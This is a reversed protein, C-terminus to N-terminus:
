EVFTPKSELEIDYKFNMGTQADAFAFTFAGTNPSNYGKESLAASTGVLYVPQFLGATNKSTVGDITISASTASGFTGYVFGKINWSTGDYYPIATAHVVTFGATNIQGSIDYQKQFSHNNTSIIYWASGDCVVNIFANKFDLDVNLAGDIEESGEGEVIVKGKDTSTNKIYISRDTNASATPLTITRDSATDDVLITGIGDGDLITYDASKTSVTLPVAVNAAWSPIGSALKLVEGDSGKPLRQRGSNYYLTDGDTTMIIDAKNGINTNLTATAYDLALKTEVIAATSKVDANVINTITNNDSDIAKNTLTQADSTGVISGSAGHVGSSPNDVEAGHALNTITSNDADITKNTLTQTDSTGVIDGSTGHTTTDSIHNSINTANTGINTNLTGTAYDLALKTEVIAAAARVDANKINSISNNDSDLTKNTLTQSGTLTAVTSDIAITIAQASASTDIGTGGTATLSQSDLDVSGTGSDGAIDLDQATVQADVYAKISQQTAIQTDSDSVLDDEDLVATGSVATNLVGSTIVPATLTKNTLTQTQDATIIERIASDLYIKMKNAYVYVFGTDDIGTENQANQQTDIPKLLLGHVFTEFNNGIAM